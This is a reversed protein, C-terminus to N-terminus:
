VRNGVEQMLLGALRRNDETSLERQVLRSAAQVVLAAAEARFVVLAAYRDSEIQQQAAAVLAAAEKKGAAVIQDSQQRASERAKAIITQAEQEIRSLQEEHQKVLDEAQKKDRQSDELASQIKATRDDMFKTVPKFLIKRLVLFLIGVNILTILFTFLSPTIM